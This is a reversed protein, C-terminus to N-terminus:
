WEAHGLRLPLSIMRQGTATPLPLKGARLNMQLSPHLLRPEALVKDRQERMYVFDDQQIAAKLHKNQQKHEAVTM